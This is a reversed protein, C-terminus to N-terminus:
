RGIGLMRKKFEEILAMANPDKSQVASLMKDLMQQSNRTSGADVFYVDGKATQREEAIRMRMTEEIKGFMDEMTRNAEEAKEKMKVANEIMLNFMDNQAAFWEDSKEESNGIRTQIVDKNFNFWADYPDSYGSMDMSNGMVGSLGAMESSGMVDKYISFDDMDKITGLMNSKQGVINGALKINDYLKLAVDNFGGSIADAFTNVSVDGVQLYGKKIIESVGGALDAYFETLGQKNELLSLAKENETMYTDKSINQYKDSLESYTDVIGSDINNLLNGISKRTVAISADLSAKAMLFEIEKTLDEIIENVTKTYGQVTEEVLVTYNIEGFPTNGPLGGWQKDTVTGGSTKIDSYTKEFWAQYANVSDEGRLSVRLGNNNMLAKKNELNFAGTGIMGESQAYKLIDSESYSGSKFKEVEKYLGGVKSMTSGAVGSAGPLNYIEKAAASIANITENTISKLQNALDTELGILGMKADYWEMTGKTYEAVRKKEIEISVKAMKISDEGYFSNVFAEYEMKKYITEKELKQIEDIMQQNAYEQELQKDRYEDMKERKDAATYTSAAYQEYSERIMTLKKTDFVYQMRISKLQDTEATKNISRMQTYHNRGADMLMAYYGDLSKLYSSPDAAAHKEKPGKFWGDGSSWESYGISGFNYGRIADTNANGGMYYNLSDDSRRSNYGQLQANYDNAIQQANGTKDKTGGFIRGPSSLFSAAGALALGSLPTIKGIGLKSLLGGGTAASKSSIAASAVTQSLFDGMGPLGSMQSMAHGGFVAATNKSSTMSKQQDASLVSGFLGGLLGGLGGSGGNGGGGLIGSLMGGLGGSSGGAAGTLGGTVDIGLIMKTVSVAAIQALIKAITQQISKGISRFMDGLNKIEGTMFGFFGDEFSQRLGNAIEGGANLVMIGFSDWEAVAGDMGNRFISDTSDTEIGEEIRSRYEPLWSKRVAANKSSLYAEKNGKLQELNMMKLNKTMQEYTKRQEYLPKLTSEIIKKQEILTKLFAEMEEANKGGKYENMVQRAADEFSMGERNLVVVKNTLETAEKETAAFNSHIGYSISLAEELAKLDFARSWTGQMMEPSVQAFEFNKSFMADKLYLSSYEKALKMTNDFDERFKDFKNVIKDVYEASDNLQRTFAIAGQVMQGVDGMGVSGALNNFIKPTAYKAMEGLAESELGPRLNVDDIKGITPNKEKLKDYARQRIVDRMKSEAEWSAALKEIADPGFMHGEEDKLDDFTSNVMGVIKSVHQKIGMTINSMSLELNSFSKLLEAGQENPNKLFDGDYGDLDSLSESVQKKLSNLIGSVSNDTNGSGGFLKAIWGSKGEEDKVVDAYEVHVVSNMLNSYSKRNVRPDSLAVADEFKANSNMPDEAWIKTIVGEKLLKVFPALIEDGTKNGWPAQYDVAIGLPHKSGKVSEAETRYASTIGAGDFGAERLANLTKSVGMITSEKLGTLRPLRGNGDSLLYNKLDDKTKLVTEQSPFSDGFGTIKETIKSLDIGSLDVGVSKGWAVLSEGYKISEKALDNSDNLTTVWIDLGTTAVVANKIEDNQKRLNELKGSENFGTMDAVTSTLWTGFVNGLAAGAGTGLGIHGTAVTGGLGGIFTTAARVGTGIANGIRQGEPTAAYNIRNTERLREEEADIQAQNKRLASEKEKQDRYVLEGTGLYKKLSPNADTIDKLLVMFSDYLWSFLGTFLSFLSKGIPVLLGSKILVLSSAILLPIQLFPLSWALLWAAKFISVLALIARFLNGAIGIISSMLLAISGGLMMVNGPGFFLTWLIGKKMTDKSMFSGISGDAGSFLGALGKGVKKFVSYADEGM